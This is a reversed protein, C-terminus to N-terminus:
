VRFGFVLGQITSEMKSEMMGIVGIYLWYLGLM